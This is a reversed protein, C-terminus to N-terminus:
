LRVARTTVVIASTASVIAHDCRVVARWTVAVNTAATAIAATAVSPSTTPVCQNVSTRPEMAIAVTMAASTPASRFQGALDTAKSRGLLVREDCLPDSDVIIGERQADVLRGGGACPRELGSRGACLTM